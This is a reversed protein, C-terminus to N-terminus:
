SRLFPLCIAASPPTSVGDWSSPPLGACYVATGALRFLTFFAIGTLYALLIYNYRASHKM